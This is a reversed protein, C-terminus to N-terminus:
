SFPCDAGRVGKTRRRATLEWGSRITSQAATCELDDPLCRASLDDSMRYDDNAPIANAMACVQRGKRVFREHQFFLGRDGWESSVFRSTTVLKGIKHAGACKRPDLCPDKNVGCLCKDTGPAWLEYLTTGAALDQFDKRFDHAASSFKMNDAPVFYVNSPAQIADPIAEKIKTCLEGACVTAKSISAKPDTSAFEATGLHYPAKAAQSFFDMVVSAAAGLPKPVWTKLPNLFFNYDQGQGDGLATMAILNSSFTSDRLVKVAIGPTFCGETFPVGKCPDTPSKVLSTRILGVQSGSFLGTYPQGPEAELRVKAVTGHTHIIKAHDAMYEDSFRDFSESITSNFATQAIQANASIIGVWENPFSSYESGQIRSWMRELKQDATLAVYDPCDICSASDLQTSRADQDHTQEGLSPGKSFAVFVVATMVVVALSTAVAAKM